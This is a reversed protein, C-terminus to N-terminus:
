LVDKLKKRMHMRKEHKYLSFDSRNTLLHPPQFSRKDSVVSSGEYDEEDLLQERSKFGANSIGHRNAKLSMGDMSGFLFSSDAFTQDFPTESITHGHREYRKNSKLNISISLDDSGGTSRSVNQRNIPIPTTKTTPIPIPIATATASSSFLNNKNGQELQNSSEEKVKEKIPSNLNLSSFYRTKINRYSNSPIVISPRMKQQERQKQQQQKQQQQQHHHHFHHQLLQDEKLSPSLLSQPRNNNTTTTTSNSFSNPQSSSLLSSTGSPSYSGSLRLTTAATTTSSPPPPDNYTLSTLTQKM